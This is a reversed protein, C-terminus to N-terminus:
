RASRLLPVILLSSARATAIATASEEDVEFIIEGDDVSMVRLDAALPIALPREGVRVALLDVKEGVRIAGVPTALWAVPVAFAWTAPALRATLARAAAADAVSSPASTIIAVAAAGLLVAGAVWAVARRPPLRRPGFTLAPLM